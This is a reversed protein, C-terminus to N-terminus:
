TLLHWTVDCFQALFSMKLELNGRPLEYINKPQDKPQWLIISLNPLLRDRKRQIMQNVHDIWPGMSTCPEYARSLGKLYCLHFNFGFAVGKKVYGYM